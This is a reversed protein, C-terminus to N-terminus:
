CKQPVASGGGASAGRCPLVFPRFRAFFPRKKAAYYAFASPACRATTLLAIIGNGACIDAIREGKRIRAFAALLVADTGFCFGNTDQYLKLGKYQLDDIRLM